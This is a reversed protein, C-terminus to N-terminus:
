PSSPASRSSKPWRAELLEGLSRMGAETDIDHGTRHKFPRTLNAAPPMVAGGVLLVAPGVCDRAYSITTGDASTFTPMDIESGM